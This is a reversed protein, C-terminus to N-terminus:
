SDEEAITRAISQAEAYNDDDYFKFGFSYMFSMLNGYSKEMWALSKEDFLYDTLHGEMDRESDEDGEENDEDVDMDNKKELREEEMFQWIIARGEEPDKDNFIKLGYAL